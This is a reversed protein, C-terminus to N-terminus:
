RCFGCFPSHPHNDNWRDCLLCHRPQCQHCWKAERDKWGQCGHCVNAKDVDKKPEPKADM